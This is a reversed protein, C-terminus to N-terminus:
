IVSTDGEDASDAVAAEDNTDAVVVPANPDCTPAVPDVRIQYYGPWVDEGIQQFRSHVKEGTGYILVTTLLVLSPLFGLFVTAM